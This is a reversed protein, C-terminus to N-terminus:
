AESENIRLVAAVTWSLQSSATNEEDNKSSNFFTNDFFIEQFHSSTKNIAWPDDEMVVINFNYPIMMLVGGKVAFSKGSM